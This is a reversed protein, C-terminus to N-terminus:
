GAQTYNISSAVDEIKLNNKLDISKLTLKSNENVIFYLKEEDDYKKLDDEYLSLKTSTSGPNLVLINYM